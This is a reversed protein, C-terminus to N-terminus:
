RPGPGASGPEALPQAELSFRLAGGAGSSGSPPRPVIRWLAITMVRPAVPDGHRVAHARTRWIKTRWSSEEIRPEDLQVRPFCM